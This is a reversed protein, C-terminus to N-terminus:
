SSQTQKKGAREELYAAQRAEDAKIREALEGTATSKAENSWYMFGCLDVTGDDANKPVMIKNGEADFEYTIRVFPNRYQECVRLSRPLTRSFTRLM